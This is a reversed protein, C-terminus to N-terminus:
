RGRKNLLCCVQALLSTLEWLLHRLWHRFAELPPELGQPQPWYVSNRPLPGAGELVSNPDLGEPLEQLCLLVLM